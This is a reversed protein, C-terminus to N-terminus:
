KPCKIPKRALTNNAIVFFNIKKKKPQASAYDTSRVYASEIFLRLKGGDSRSVRFYIEYEQENGAEGVLKVKFFNGKGTHYCPSANIQM